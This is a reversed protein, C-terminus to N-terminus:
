MELGLTPKSQVLLNTPQSLTVELVLAYESRTFKPM